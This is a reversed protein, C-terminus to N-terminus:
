KEEKIFHIKQTSIKGNKYAVIKIDVAPSDQTSTILRHTVVSGDEFDTRMGKGNSLESKVGGVSIKDYFEQSEACPDKCKIVQCNKDKTGFKGNEKNFNYKEKLSNLNRNPSTIIKKEVIKHLFLKSGQTNGFNGRYGSGM